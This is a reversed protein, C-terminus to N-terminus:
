NRKGQVRVMPFGSLKLKQPGKAKAREGKKNSNRIRFGIRLRSAAAMAKNNREPRETVWTRRNEMKAKTSRKMTKPARKPPSSLCAQPFPRARKAATVAKKHEAKRAAM